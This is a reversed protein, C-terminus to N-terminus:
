QTNADDFTPMHMDDIMLVLQTGLAPGYFKGNRKDIKEELNGRVDAAKTRSSFNIPLIQHSTSELSNLFNQM